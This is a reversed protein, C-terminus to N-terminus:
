QLRCQHESPLAPRFARLRKEINKEDRLFWSIKALSPSLFHESENKGLLIIATRTIKGQITVKAKNLFTANDWSDVEEAQAPYKKKYNERAKQIAKLDLDNLTADECIGSSWDEHVVQRRIFEIEQLNLAVLSEGDRGYYHGEM